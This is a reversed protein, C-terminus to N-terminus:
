QSEEESKASKIIEFGLAQAGMNRRMTESAVSETGRWHAYRIVHPLKGAATRREPDNPMEILRIHDGAKVNTM